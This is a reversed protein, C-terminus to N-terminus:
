ENVTGVCVPQSSNSNDREFRHDVAPNYDDNSRVLNRRLISYRKGNTSLENSAFSGYLSTIADIGVLCASSGEPKPLARSTHRHCNSIETKSCTRTYSTPPLQFCDYVGVLPLLLRSQTIILGNTVVQYRHLFTCSTTILTTSHISIHNSDFPASKSQM